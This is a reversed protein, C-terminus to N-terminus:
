ANSVLILKLLEQHRERDTETFETGANKQVQQLKSIFRSISESSRKLDPALDVHEVLADAYIKAAAIPSIKQGSKNKDNTDQCVCFLDGGAKLFKTAVEAESIGSLAGMDLADTIIAGKFGLSERLLTTLIPKSLTAPNDADINKYVVHATMILERGSDVYAKFPVLEQKELIERATEVVPLERHSDEITGGHGPFHKACGLVGESELGDLFELGLQQVREPQDSFAREGIVTNRPETLVDLSPAFNLNIGLSALEKGMAAGIAFSNEHWNKAAPFKTIPDSLRHVRGGEHDISAVFEPRGSIERLERILESLEQRWTAGKSINRGFIITGLPRLKRWLSREEDSLATGQVGVIFHKGIEQM